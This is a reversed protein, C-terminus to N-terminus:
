KDKLTYVPLLKSTPTTVPTIRKLRISKTQSWVEAAMRYADNGKRIENLVVTIVANEDLEGLERRAVITIYTRGDKEEEENYFM